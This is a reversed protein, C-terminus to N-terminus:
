FIKSLLTPRYSVAGGEELVSHTIDRGIIQFSFYAIMHNKITPYIASAM